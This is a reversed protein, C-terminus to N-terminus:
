MEAMTLGVFTRNAGRDTATITIKEDANMIINLNSGTGEKVSNSFDCTLLVRGSDGTIRCTGQNGSGNILIGKVIYYKGSAPTKLITTDGTFENSTSRTNFSVDTLNGIKEWTEM